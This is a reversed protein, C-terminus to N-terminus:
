NGATPNSAGGGFRGVNGFLEAFFNMDKGHTVTKKTVPDIIQNDEVSYRRIDSVYNEDDFSIALIDMETVREKFFAWQETKKSYYYWNEDDFTPRMTPNGLMSLVSEKNDVEVRIAETMKPDPVYGRTTKIASCSALIATSLLLITLKKATNAIKINM